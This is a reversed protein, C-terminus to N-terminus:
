KNEEFFMSWWFGFICIVWTFGNLVAFSRDWEKVESNPLLLYAACIIAFAIGKM